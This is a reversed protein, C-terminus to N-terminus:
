IRYTATVGVQRPAARTEYRTEVYDPDENGFFFVRKEYRENFLNRGWVAFTWERWSWGLSANVVRFARRAEDQNNSDFQRARGVLEIQGFFGHDSRYRTGVTYGYRPANALPRGGGSNGNALVFRDLHSRLSALSGHLSWKRTFEYGGSAEFGRVTARKANATFFRYSGGFGASDRVQTDDRRLYFATFGARLRRDLWDGRVGAEYNWLMETDYTLPDAPPNIRADVNIGGGKYGRTVSLFALHRDSLDQELTIKGGILIDEFKPAFAVEPDFTGAAKRFRTRRGRGELDLREARLGVILRTHAALDRGM